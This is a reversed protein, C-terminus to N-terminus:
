SSTCINHIIIKKADSVCYVPQDTLKTMYQQMIYRHNASYLRSIDRHNSNKQAIQLLTTNRVTRLYCIPRNDGQHWLLVRRVVDWVRGGEGLGEASVTRVSKKQKSKRTLVELNRRRLSKWWFLSIVNAMNLRFIQIYQVWLESAEIKGRFILVRVLITDKHRSKLFSASKINKATRQSSKQKTKPASQSNTRILPSSLVSSFTNQEEVWFFPFPILSFFSNLTTQGGWFRTDTIAASNCASLGHSEWPLRGNYKGKLPPKMDPIIRQTSLCQVCM